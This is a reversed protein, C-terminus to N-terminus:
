LLPAPKPTRSVVQAGARTLEVTRVQGKPGLAEITKGNLSIDLGGANGAIVKVSEEANIERRENPKLIGSFLVKGDVTVSVWSTDSANLVVQLSGSGVASPPSASVSAPSVIPKAEPTASQAAKPSAVEAPRSAAGFSYNKSLYYVGGSGVLALVVWVGAVTLSNSKTQLPMYPVYNAELHAIPPPPDVRLEQLESDVYSPDLGLIAAYQKLFSRTFVGGPLKALDGEEMAQLMRTSIKTAESLKQFDLGQSVRERRLADGITNM